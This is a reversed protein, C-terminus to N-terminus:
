EEPTQWYSGKTWDEPTTGFNDSVELVIQEDPSCFKLKPEIFEKKM